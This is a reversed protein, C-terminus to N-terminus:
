TTTTPDEAVVPPVSAAVPAPSADSAREGAPKSRIAMSLMCGAVLLAVMEALFLKTSQKHLQKFQVSERQGAARLKEMPPVIMTSLLIAGIAALLFLVIIGSLVRRPEIFRWAVVAVLVISGIILQYLGFTTFLIPAADIAIPRNKAFLAAVFVILVMMGGFWLAWALITLTSLFSRM